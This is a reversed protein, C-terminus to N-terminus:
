QIKSRKRGGLAVRLRRTTPEIGVRSVVSEMGGVAKHVEEISEAPAAQTGGLSTDDLVDILKELSNDAEFM